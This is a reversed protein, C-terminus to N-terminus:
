LESVVAAHHNAHVFMDEVDSTLEVPQEEWHGAHRTEWNGTGTMADRPRQEPAPSARRDPLLCVSCGRLLSSFLRSSNCHALRSPWALGPWCSWCGGGGGEGGTKKRGDEGMSRTFILSSVLCRGTLVACLQTLHKSSSMWQSWARVWRAGRPTRRARTSLSPGRRLNTSVSTTLPQVM